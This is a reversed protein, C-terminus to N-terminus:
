KKNGTVILPHLNGCCTRRHNRRLNLKAKAKVSSNETFTSSVIYKPKGFKMSSIETHFLRYMNINDYLKFFQDMVKNVDYVYM